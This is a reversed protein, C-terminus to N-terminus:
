LRQSVEGGREILKVLEQCGGSYEIHFQYKKIFVACIISVMHIDEVRKEKKNLKAKRPLKFLIFHSRMCM